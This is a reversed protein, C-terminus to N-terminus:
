AVVQVAIPMFAHNIGCIESCQGYYIGTRTPLVGITNIRGPCADIKVGLAPVAWSHIVDSSTVLLRTFRNVPMTIVNDPTLLRLSMHKLGTADLLNSYIVVNEKFTSYEYVWFWQNGIIKLWIAPKHAEDLALALTFSPLSILILIFCPVITWIFELTAYYMWYTSARYTSAEKLILDTCGQTDIKKVYSSENLYNKLKKIQKSNENNFLHETETIKSDIKTNLTANKNKQVNLNQFHVYLAFVASGLLVLFVILLQCMITHYLEVMGRFESAGPTLFDTNWNYGLSASYLDNTEVYESKTANGNIYLKKKYFSNLKNQLFTNMNDLINIESIDQKKLKLKIIKIGNIVDTKSNLIKNEIELKNENVENEIYKKSIDNVSNTAENIKNNLNIEDGNTTKVIFENNTNLESIASNEIKGVEENKIYNNYQQSM